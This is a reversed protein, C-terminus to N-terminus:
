KNVKENQNFNKKKWIRSVKLTQLNSIENKFNNYVLKEFCVVSVTHNAVHFSYGYTVFLALVELIKFHM